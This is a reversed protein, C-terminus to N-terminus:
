EQIVIELDEVTPAEMLLPVIHGIAERYYESNSGTVKRDEEGEWLTIIIGKGTNRDVLMTFGQFGTQQQTAPLAHNRVNHIAEDVRYPSFQTTTVRAYM